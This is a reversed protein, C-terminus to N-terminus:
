RLYDGQPFVGENLNLSVAEFVLFLFRFSVQFKNQFQHGILQGKEWKNASDSESIEVDTTNKQWKSHTFSKAYFLMEREADRLVAM